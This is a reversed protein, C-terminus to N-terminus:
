NQPFNLEVYDFSATKQNAQITVDAFAKSALYQEATWPQANEDVIPTGTTTDIGKPPVVLKGMAETWNDTDLWYTQDNTMVIRTPASITVDLLDEDLDNVKSTYNGYYKTISNTRENGKADSTSEALELASFTSSSIILCYTGDDNLTLEQHAFTTLYYNYAPRMNQYSLKAPSLYIGTVKAEEAAGCATFLCAVLAVALIISLIKKM